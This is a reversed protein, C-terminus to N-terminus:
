ASGIEVGSGIFFCWTRAGAINNVGSAANNHMTEARITINAGAPAYFSGGSCAVWEGGTNTDYSLDSTVALTTSPAPASSRIASVFLKRYSGATVAGAAVMNVNAGFQWWGPRPTIFVTAGTLAFNSYIATSAGITGLTNVATNLVTANSTSVFGPRLRYSDFADSIGDLADDIVFAQDQMYLATAAYDEEGLCSLGHTGIPEM